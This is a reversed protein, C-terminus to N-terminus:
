PRGLHEGDTADVVPASPVTMRAMEALVADRRADWQGPRGFTDFIVAVDSADLGYLLAVCADLEALLGQRGEDPVGGVPAGVTNAWNRFREDSAALRSSIAQVRDRLAHGTGPDPISLTNVIEFSMKLEVVRRSQWDFIASSMVGLVYAEDGADGDRQALYPAKEGLITCPPVLASIMTRTDTSRAVDRFAIRASHCPLAAGTETNSKERLFAQISEADASDYYNDTDPNWIGFSKGTYVPWTSQSSADTTTM